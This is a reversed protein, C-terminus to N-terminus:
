FRLINKFILRKKLFSLLEILNELSHKQEAIHNVISEDPNEEDIIHTSIYLEDLWGGMIILAATAGRYNEKLYIIFPDLPTLLTFYLLPTM